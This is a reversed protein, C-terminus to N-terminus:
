RSLWICGIKPDQRLLATSYRSQHNGQFTRRSIDEASFMSCLISLFWEVQFLDVQFLDAQFLDQIAWYPLVMLVGLSGEVLHYRCSLRIREHDSPNNLIRDSGSHWHRKYSGFNWKGPRILRRYGFWCNCNYFDQERINIISTSPYLIFSM